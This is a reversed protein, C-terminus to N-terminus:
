KGYTNASMYTRYVTLLAEQYTINNLPNMNGMDDGKMIGIGGIFSTSEKAWESIASADAFTVEESAVAGPALLHYARQLMAAAQERTIKASPAFETDSMGNVVGLAYARTVAKTKTDNFAKEERVAEVSKPIASVIAKCFDERTIAETYNLDFTGTGLGSACLLSLEKKAWDSANKIPSELIPEVATIDPSIVKYIEEAFMQACEANPHLFDPFLDGKDKSFDMLNVTKVGLKKALDRLQPVAENELIKPDREGIVNEKFIRPSLGIYVKVDENVAKFSDIIKTYDAIFNKSGTAWNEAKIDNTGLMMFLVDPAYEVADKYQATEVYPKKASFLASTASVGYNRVEVNSPFMDNLYEPYYKRNAAHSNTISDGICAIKVDPTKKHSWLWQLMNPEAYGQAWANHQPEFYNTLTIDAGEAVLAEVMAYTGGPQVTPDLAQQFTWIPIDNILNAKTPDAAGAMPIAAAFMKPNRMVIDWVGFGGMSLGTAYIRSLDISKNEIIHDILEIVAAQYKAVPTEDLNYSRDYINEGTYDVWKSDAACQPAIIIFEEATNYEGNDDSIFEGKIIRKLLTNHQAIQSTNNDGRNGLGHMFLLLAYEKEADYNEPVYMRYPLTTSKDVTTYTEATMVATLDIDEEANVVFVSMMPTLMLVCLVLSLVKTYFKKM